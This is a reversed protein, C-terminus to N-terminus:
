QLWRQYQGFSAQRSPRGTPHRQNTHEAPEGTPPTKSVSNDRPSTNTPNSSQHHVPAPDDDGRRSSHASNISDPSQQGEQQNDSFGPISRGDHGDNIASSVLPQQFHESTAGVNNRDLPNKPNPLTYLATRTMSFTDGHIRHLVTEPDELGQQPTKM